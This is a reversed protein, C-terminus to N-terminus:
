NIKQIMVYPLFSFMYKWLLSGLLNRINFFTKKSVSIKLYFYAQIYNYYICKAIYMNYPLTLLM